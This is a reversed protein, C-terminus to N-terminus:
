GDEALMRDRLAELRIREERMFGAAAYDVENHVCLDPVLLGAALHSAVRIATNVREFLRVAEAVDPPADGQIEVPFAAPDVTLAERVKRRIAGLGWPEEADLAGPDFIPRVKAVSIGFAALAAAIEDLTPHAM